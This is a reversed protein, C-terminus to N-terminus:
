APREARGALQEILGDWVGRARLILECIERVAGAGGRSETVWDARALLEPAAEAVAIRLGAVRYAALDAIDDGVFACRSPAVGMERCMALLGEAKDECRGAFFRVGLERHRKEAIDVARGSLIGIPLSKALLAIGAGDKVDFSLLRRGDEDYFLEGRTLVGDCDFVLAELARLREVSVPWLLEDRRSPRVRPTRHKRASRLRM